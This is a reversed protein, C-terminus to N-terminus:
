SRWITLALATLSAILALLSVLYIPGLRSAVTRGLEDARSTWEVDANAQLRATAAIEDRLTRVSAVAEDLRTRDQGLSAHLASLQRVIETRDANFESVEGDARRMAAAMAAQGAALEACRAQLAAIAADFRGLASDAAVAPVIANAPVDAVRSELSAQRERMRAIEEALADVRRASPVFSLTPRDMFPDDAPARRLIGRLKDFVASSM